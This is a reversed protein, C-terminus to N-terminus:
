ANLIARPGEVKLSRFRPQFPVDNYDLVPNLKESFKSKVFGPVERGNLKLSLIDAFVKNDDTVRLKGLGVIPGSFWSWAWNGTVQMVDGHEKDKLYKVKLGMTATSKGLALMATLDDETVVARMKTTAKITRIKGEALGPVSIRVDKAHVSFEAIRLKKIRVPQGEVIIEDFYGEAARAGPKLVLKLNNTPSIVRERLIKEVRQPVKNDDAKPDCVGSRFFVPASVATALLM